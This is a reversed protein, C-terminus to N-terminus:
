GLSYGGDATFTGGTVFSARDSLLFVVAEAIEEPRGFRRLPINSKIEDGALQQTTKFMDTEVPGPEVCNVRVGKRGYELALARTLAGLAGKTAAYVAQGPGVRSQTVSGINVISGCRERMMHPLIFRCAYIPGLINTDIQRTIMEDSQTPLLGPLNIGANNVWGHVQNGDEVLTRCAAELAEPDGVDFQFAVAEGEYKATLEGALSEAEDRHSLYNIFVRAGERACVRAIAAGIGRSAGTVIITKGELMFAM